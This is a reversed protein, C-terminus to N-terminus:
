LANKLASEVLPLVEKDRLGATSIIPLFKISVHAPYIGFGSKPMFKETGHIVFPAIDMGTRSALIFGGRKLPLLEGTVSRTGEPFIVLNKGHKVSEIAKLLSKFAESSEGRDVGIMGLAKMASGLFPVKFIEKKSMFIVDRKAVSMALFMILIDTYSRHNGMLIYTKAPDLNELGEIDLTSKLRNFIKFGASGIRKRYFREKDTFLGAIHGKICFLLVAIVVYTFRINAIFKKM